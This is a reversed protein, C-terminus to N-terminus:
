GEGDAPFMGSAQTGSIGATLESEAQDFSNAVQTVYGELDAIGSQMKERRIRWSSAFSDIEHRLSETDHHVGVAEQILDAVGDAIDFEAALIRLAAARDHLHGTDLRLRGAM